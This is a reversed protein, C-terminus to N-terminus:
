ASIINAIDAPQSPAHNSIRLALPRLFCSAKFCQCPHANKALGQACHLKPKTICGYWGWAAYTRSRVVTSYIIVQMCDFEFSSVLSRIAEIGHMAFLHGSPARLPPRLLPILSQLHCPVARDGALMRKSRCRGRRLRSSRCHHKETARSNTSKVRGTM